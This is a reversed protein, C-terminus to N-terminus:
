SAPPLDELLQRTIQLVIERDVLPVNRFISHLGRSNLLVGNVSKPRLFFAMEWKAKVFALVGQVPIDIGAKALLQEVIRVQKEVGELLNNRNRGNIKLIAKGGFYPALLKGFDIKDAYNKADIVFVKSSTVVIHDINAVSGPILRDHITIFGRGQSLEELKRGITEEGQAGKSWSSPEHSSNLERRIWAILGPYNKEANKMVRTIKPHEVRYQEKIREDEVEKRYKQKEDM